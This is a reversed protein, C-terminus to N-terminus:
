ANSNSMKSVFKSRNKKLRRGKTPNGATRPRQDFTFGGQYAGYIESERRLDPHPYPKQAKVASLLGM